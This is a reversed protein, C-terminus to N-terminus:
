NLTPEDDDDAGAGELDVTIAQQALDPLAALHKALEEKTLTGKSLNFETMRSDFKILEDQKSKAM